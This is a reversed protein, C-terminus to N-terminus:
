LLPVIAVNPNRESVMETIVSRHCQAPDREVCLVAVKSTEALEVVRDLAEGAGNELIARMRARGETRDDSQFAARNEKPNGLEREHVYAIGAAEMAAALAKRSFGPRRSIANLRVDVLTTVGSQALREALGEVSMGEYGVSFVHGAVRRHQRLGRPGASSSRSFNSRFLGLVRGFSELSWSRM